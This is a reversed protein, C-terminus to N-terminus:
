ARWDFYYLALAVWCTVWVAQVRTLVPLPLLGFVLAFIM